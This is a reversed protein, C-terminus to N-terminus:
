GPLVDGLIIRKPSRHEVIIGHFRSRWLRDYESSEILKGKDTSVVDVCLMVLWTSGAERHLFRHHNLKVNTTVKM